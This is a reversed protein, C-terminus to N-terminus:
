VKPRLGQAARPNLVHEPRRGQAVDIIAEIVSTAVGKTFDDTWCLAHPTVIVNDMHLLPEDAAPPEQELVDLGAGAISGARLAATLAVQDVLSGRGVNVLYSSPKMAALFHEGVLHYSSPTLAATVVVYDSEAALRDIDVLEVGLAAAAERSGPRDPAIVRVGLPAVLRVVDSGVGGLGLIGITRGSVGAGRYNGRDTWRGGTAAVHNEVLRHGLALVMTLAALALPRRVALPTNTVVVGADALGELDIGDYGAGYRAIHKLQPAASVVDRTFHLHGFSLVADYGALDGANPLHGVIPPMVEWTLGAATLRELGVDGFITMGDPEACDATLGVRYPESIEAM